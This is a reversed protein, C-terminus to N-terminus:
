GCRESGRIRSSYGDTPLTRAVHSQQGTTSRRRPRPLRRAQGAERYLFSLSKTAGSDRPRNPVLHDLLQCETKSFVAQAPVGSSARNLMTMWFIRWSLICFVAILNVLRDATRLRSEEAKCGSKLIKHFTEIKWRSAYWHLRWQLEWNSQGYVSITIRIYIYMLVCAIFFRISSSQGIKGPLM